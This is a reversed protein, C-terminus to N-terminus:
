ETQGKNDLLKYSYVAAAIFLVTNGKNIIGVYVAQLAQSALLSCILGFLLFVFPNLFAMRRKLVTKGQIILVLLLIQPFVWTILYHVIFVPMIAVLINSIVEEALLTQGAGNLQQYIMPFYCLVSHIFSAGMITGFSVSAFYVNAAKPHIKALLCRISWFGPLYLPILFAALNLSLPFRWGAMNIWAPDIFTMGGPEGTYELLFVASVIGVASVAALICFLTYKKVKMNIVRGKKLAQLSQAPPVFKRTFFRSKKVSDKREQFYVKFVKAEQIVNLM